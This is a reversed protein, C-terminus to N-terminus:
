GIVAVALLLSGGIPLMKKLEAFPCEFLLKLFNNQATCVLWIVFKYVKKIAFKLHNKSM